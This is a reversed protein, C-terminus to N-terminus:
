CTSTSGSSIAFVAKEDFEELTHFHQTMTTFAAPLTFEDTIGKSDTWTKRNEQLLGSFCEYAKRAPLYKTLFTSWDQALPFAGEGKEVIGEALEEFRKM